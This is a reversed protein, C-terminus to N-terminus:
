AKAGIPTSEVQENSCTLCTLIIVTALLSVQSDLIGRCGAQAQPRLTAGGLDLPTMAPPCPQTAAGGGEMLLGKLIDGAGSQEQAPSKKKPHQYDCPNYSETM